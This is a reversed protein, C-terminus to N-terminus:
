LMSLEDKEDEKGEADPAPPPDPASKAPLLGCVMPYPENESGGSEAGKQVSSRLPWCMRIRHGMDCKSAGQLATAKISDIAIQPEWQLPAAAMGPPPLSSDDGEFNRFTCYFARAGTKGGVIEEVSRYGPPCTFTLPPKTVRRPPADPFADSSPVPLRLRGNPLFTDTLPIDDLLQALSPNSAVVSM